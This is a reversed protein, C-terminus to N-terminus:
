EDEWQGYVWRGRCECGCGYGYGYRCGSMILICRVVVRTGKRRELRVSAVVMVVVVLGVEVLGAEV